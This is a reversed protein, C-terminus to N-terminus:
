AALRRSGRRARRPREDREPRTARAAAQRVQQEDMAAEFAEREDEPLDNWGNYDCGIM